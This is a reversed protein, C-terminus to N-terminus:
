TAAILMLENEQHKSVRAMLEFFTARIQLCHGGAKSQAEQLFATHTGVYPQTSQLPNRLESTHGIATEAKEDESHKRVM